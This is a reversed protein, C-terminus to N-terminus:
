IKGKSITKTTKLIDDAEVADAREKPTFGRMSNTRQGVTNSVFSMTSGALSASGSTVGDKTANYNMAWQMPIGYTSAEQIADQNAGLYVFQWKYAESQHNVRNRVDSRKFQKSANEEGDTIVIFLVQDPRESEPINALRSGTRDICKVFADILPTGGRPRLVLKEVYNVPVGQYVIEQNDRDDFQVLSIRTTPNSKHEEIFKNFATEMAEKISAMSGSRDLLITVDTYQKM